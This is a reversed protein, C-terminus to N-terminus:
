SVVSFSRSPLSAVAASTMRPSAIVAAGVAAPTMRPSAIAASTSLGLPYARCYSCTISVSRYQGRQVASKYSYSQHRCSSNLRCILSSSKVSSAASKGNNARRPSSGTAMRSPTHPVHIIDFVVAQDAQKLRPLIHRPICQHYPDPFPAPYFSPLSSPKNSSAVTSPLECDCEPADFALKVPYQKGVAAIFSSSPM